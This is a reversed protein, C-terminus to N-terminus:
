NIQKKIMLFGIALFLYRLHSFIQTISAHLKQSLALDYKNLYNFMSFYPLNCALFLVLGVSIWIETSKSTGASGSIIVKYLILIYVIILLISELSLAYSSFELFGNLSIATFFFLMFFVYCLLLTLRIFREKFFVSAAGFLFSAEVFLYINFVWQNNLPLHLYKQRETVMYAITYLVLWSLLQFFLLRCFLNMRRFVLLGAILALVATFSEIVINEWM